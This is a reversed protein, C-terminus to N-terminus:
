QVKIQNIKAAFYASKGPNLLSLKKYVELAKKNRGQQLLVEAMSETLVENEQNSKEALAQISSDSHQNDIDAPNSSDTLQETHVKKMTKLWETFSKLQKGLKDTAIVEESLKIGQSAFYDTTHLPEFLVADDAVPTNIKEFNLKLEPLDPGTEDVENIFEEDCNEETHNNILAPNTDVPESIQPTAPLPENNFVDDVTTEETTKEISIEKQIIKHSATQAHQLQFNLWYNNNFLVANKQIRNKYDPNNNNTSKLLFFQAAAFYPYENAINELLDINGKDTFPKKFITEFLMKHKEM